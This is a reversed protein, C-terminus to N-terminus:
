RLPGRTPENAKKKVHQYQVLSPIFTIIAIIDFRTAKLIKQERTLVTM